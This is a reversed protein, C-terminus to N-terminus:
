STRITTASRIGVHATFENVFGDILSCVRSGDFNQPEQRGTVKGHGYKTRSPLCSVLYEEFAEVGATFTAHEETVFSIDLKPTFMPYYTQEEYRVLIVIFLGLDFSHYRSESMINM